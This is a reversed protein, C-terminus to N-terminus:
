KSISNGGTLAAQLGSAQIVESWGTPKRACKWMPTCTQRGRRKCMEVNICM